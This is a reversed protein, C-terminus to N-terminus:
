WGTRVVTQVVIAFAAQAALWTRVMTARNGLPAAAGAVALWVAFPLWIREVETRSLGTATAVGVALLAGGVLRWTRADRLRALGVVVAPGVAIALAATNAVLAFSHPRVSGVGAYYESRTAHLGAFWDFGAAYFAVFVLVVGASARLLPAVRRSSLAVVAPVAAVLVLGYSLMFTCGLVIGGLEATVARAGPRTLARVLLAVAVAAVGTFFADGSSAIWIALPSVVLFPMAARAAREGAVDRVAVLVAVVATAGGLVCLTAVFWPGSLGWRDFATLLLVFGPPHSRVHTPYQSIQGTFERLFALPSSVLEVGALYDHPNDVGRLLGRTGDNSNLAVAWSGTSAFTLALLPRWALREAVLPLAVVLGAAVAIALATGANARTVPAGFLPPAHLRIDIGRALLTEGWRHAVLVVLAAAGLVLLTDVRTRTPRPAAMQVRRLYSHVPM